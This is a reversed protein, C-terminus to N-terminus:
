VQCSSLRMDGSVETGGDVLPKITSMDLSSDEVFEPSTEDGVFLLTCPFLLHASV